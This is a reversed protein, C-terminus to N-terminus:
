KFHQSKAARYPIHSGSFSAGIVSNAPKSNNATAASDNAFWRTITTRAARAKPVHAAKQFDQADFLQTASLRFATIPRQLLGLTTGLCGQSVQAPIADRTITRM